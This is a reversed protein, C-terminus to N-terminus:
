INEIDFMFKNVGEAWSGNSLPTYKKMIEDPTLYGLDIYNKKLGKAVTEIGEEWTDFCLTGKSHIGYGWANNCDSSPMRIGLNSEKQAIATILRYDLNYKDSTQVIYNAHTILPSDYFELYQKILVVRGDDSIIKASVTPFEAPLSAFIQVGQNNKNATSNLSYNDNEGYSTSILSVLSTILAIPAVIMFVAVFLVQKKVSIGSAKINENEM